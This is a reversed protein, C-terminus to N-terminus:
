FHLLLVCLFTGEPSISNWIKLRLCLVLVRPRVMWVPPLSLIGLLNRLNQSTNPPLGLLPRPKISAALEFSSILSPSTLLPTQFLRNTFNRCHSPNPLPEPGSPPPPPPIQFFTWSHSTPLSTPNTSTNVWKLASPNHPILISFPSLDAFFLFSSNQLSSPFQFFLSLIFHAPSPFVSLNFLPIM